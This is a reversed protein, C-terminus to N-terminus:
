DGARSYMVIASKQREESLGAYFYPSGRSADSGVTLLGSM